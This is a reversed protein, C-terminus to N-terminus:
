ILNLDQMCEEYIMRRLSLSDAKLQEEPVAARRKRFMPHDAVEWYAMVDAHSAENKTTSVKMVSSKTARDEANTVEEVSEDQLKQYGKKRSLQSLIKRLM